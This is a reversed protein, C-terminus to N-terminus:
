IRHLHDASRFLFPLGFINAKGVFSALPAMNTRNIDIGGTRTQEFTAKQEGLVGGPYVIMRHRGQTRDSVLESMHVLARATPHDSSQTDAARFERPEAATKPTNQAWATLPWGAAAGGLLAVFERRRVSLMPAGEWTGGSIMAALFQRACMTQRMLLGGSSVM